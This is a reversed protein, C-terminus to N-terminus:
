VPRPHQKWPCILSATWLLCVTHPSWSGSIDIQYPLHFGLSFGRKGKGCGMLTCVPSPEDWWVEGETPDNGWCWHNQHLWHLYSCRSIPSPLTTGQKMSEPGRPCSPLLCTKVCQSFDVPSQSFGLSPLLLSKHYPFVSSSCSLSRGVGVQWRHGVHPSM